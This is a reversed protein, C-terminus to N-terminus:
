TRLKTYEIKKGGGSFNRQLAPNHAKIAATGNGDRSDQHGLGMMKQITNYVNM